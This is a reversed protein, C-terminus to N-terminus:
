LFFDFPLLNTFQYADRKTSDSPLRLSTHVCKINAIVPLLLKFFKIRTMDHQISAKTSDFYSEMNKKDSYWYLGPHAEELTKLLIDLDVKLASAKIIKQEANNRKSLCGTQLFIVAILLLNKYKSLLQM